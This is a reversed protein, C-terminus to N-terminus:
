KNQEVLSKFVTDKALLAKPSDNEIICGKDLVIITDSDIITAVRHAITLVTRDKFEKRVVTQIIKDTAMDVSATAEDMVLITSKRLFARALCFLQRQGVSYNEGGESVVADLGLPLQQIIPKLQAIDLGEWLEDDTKVHEPDLNYRVTGSFLVPDQPIISIRSRLRELPVRSIDIGDMFIQGKCIDIIRFLGLTLSSKGSGTRGCIGVKEGPTIKINVNDVVPDLDSAYRLAVNRLEILGQDPWSDSPEEAGAYQEQPVNTYHTVREVANFHMEGESVNRMLWNLYSSVNLAYAIALGVLGPGAAGSVGTAVSSIAAIFVIAAGLYDLRVGMWVNSTHLYLFATNNSDISGLNKDKFREQARYARITPLGGLTESFQAFVPSRSVSDLRQLERSSSIYFRQIAFYCICLPLVALLFFPTTIGNVVIGSLCVLVCYFVSDITIPLKEDITNTDYSFRNLIRGLPTTDFFRMPARVIAWLMGSFLKKSASLSMIYLVVGCVFALFVTPLGLAVYVGVYYSNDKKATHSVESNSSNGTSNGHYSDVHSGGSGESWEALWFDMGMRFAQRAVYCLLTILVMYWSAAQTYLKYVILKVHGTEREEEEILKGAENADGKSDPTQSKRRELESGTPVKDKMALEEGFIDMRSQSLYAIATLSQARGLEPLDEEPLHRAVVASKVKHPTSTMHDPLSSLVGHSKAQRLRPSTHINDHSLQRTLEERELSISDLGEEAEQQSQELAKKASLIADQWQAYLAPDDTKIDDLTGNHTIACDKMVYVQKAQPLYQLQHTVLVVTRQQSLLFDQIGHHFIHSGVHVDLASLPDDLILVDTQSYMARAVSVRQKQGGSMNIGKEGIETQDGAPLIKIDPELACAKIVENYREADYPEGFLINDRVTSNMLWARQAAYAIKVDRSWTVTGGMTTMEGLLASLLSSKGSGVQGVIMTLEGKPITLQVNSLLPEKSEFDWTFEGDKIEIVNDEHIKTDKEAVNDEQTKVASYQAGDKTTKSIDRESGVNGNQRGDQEITSGEVESALFFPLLRDTSVKAHTIINIVMPAVVLPIALLNFLALASFAKSATLQQGEIYPYVCFTVLTISIPAGDTIFLTAAWLCAAKFLFKLEKKRVDEVKKCFLAEWAYLKLLKIGQLMENAQKLREDANELIKKQMKALYSGVVYQLPLLSVLFGAGILASVGVQIYLLAFIVTLQIPLTWAFHGMYFLMMVHFCDNSMHNLIQGQIPLTWAFHGMYFLMMVHFCDNSMHNLIQGQTMTGESMTYTSLRLSKHYVMSQIAARCRIGQRISLYFHNQWFTAMCSYAVLLVVALVFGNSFFEMTTIAFDVETITMNEPRSRVEEVYKVIGEVAMPGILQCADALVKFLGGLCIMPWFTKFYCIWLSPQKGKKAAKEKEADFIQKFKIFNKEAWETKPLKGLDKLELTNKYGYRLLPNLWWWIARSLLNVHPQIYGTEELEDPPAVPVPNSLFAYRQVKFTYIEVVVLAVYVLLGGYNVVLRLHSGNLGKMHLNLVKTVNYTDSIVGEGIELITIILLILILVWRVNHGTFHVWTKDLSYRQKNSLYNVLLSPIEILIFILHPILCLLNNICENQIYPEGILPFANPGCYAEMKIM